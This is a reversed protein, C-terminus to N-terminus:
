KTLKAWIQSRLNEHAITQGKAAQEISALTKKKEEASLEEWWDKGSHSQELVELTNYLITDDSCNEVLQHIKEKISMGNTQQMFDFLIGPQETIM